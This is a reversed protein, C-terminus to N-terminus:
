GKIISIIGIITLSPVFAKLQDTIDIVEWFAFVGLKGWLAMALFGGIIDILTGIVPIRGIIFDFLDWIISIGLKILDIERM